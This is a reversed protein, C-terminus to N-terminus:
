ANRGYSRTKLALEGPMEKVLGEGDEEVREVLARAAADRDQEKQGTRNAMLM